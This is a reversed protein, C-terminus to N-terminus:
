GCKGLLEKVVPRPAAVDLPTRLVRSPVEYVLVDAVQRPEVGLTSFLQLWPGPSGKVVVIKRIHKAALFEELDQEYAAALPGGRFTRVIPWTQFDPPMPCLRGEPMSFWM